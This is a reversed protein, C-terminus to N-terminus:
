EGKGFQMPKISKEIGMGRVSENPVILKTSTDEFYFATERMGIRVIRARRGNIVVIDDPQYQKSWWVMLGQASSAIISNFVIAVIGALFLWGNQGIFDKATDEM